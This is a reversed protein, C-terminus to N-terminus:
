ILLHLHLTYLPVQYTAPMQHANATRPINSTSGGSTRLQRQEELIANCDQVQPHMLIVRPCKLGVAQLNGTRDLPRRGM